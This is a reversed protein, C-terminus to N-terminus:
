RLNKCLMEQSNGVYTVWAGWPYRDVKTRKVSISFVRCVNADESAALGETCAVAPYSETTERRFANATVSKKGNLRLVKVKKAHSGNGFFKNVSGRMAKVLRKNNNRGKPCRVSAKAEKAAKDIRKLLVLFQASALTLDKDRHALVPLDQNLLRLTEITELQSIVSGRASAFFNSALQTDLHRLSNPMTTSLYWDVADSMSKKYIAGARECMVLDQSRVQCQVTDFRTGATFCAGWETDFEKAKKLTDAFALARRKFEPLTSSKNMDLEHAKMCIDFYASKREKCMAEFVGDKMCLNFGEAVKSVCRKKPWYGEVSACETAAKAECAVKDGKPIESCDPDSGAWATSQIALLSLIGVTGLIKM